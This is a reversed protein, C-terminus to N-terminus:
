CSPRRSRSSSMYDAAGAELARAVTEDRGYAPIFIVPLDSLEPIKGMLEIGDGGHLILDLLVLRPKETRIVHALEQPEGTVLPAYGADSLIDRVSRLTRPDDDVM